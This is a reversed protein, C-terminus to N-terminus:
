PIIELVKHGMKIVTLLSIINQAILWSDLDITVFIHFIYFFSPIIQIYYILFQHFDRKWEIWMYYDEGSNNMHTEWLRFQEKSYPQYALVVKRSITCSLNFKM